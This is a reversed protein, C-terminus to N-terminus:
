EKIIRRNITQQGDTLNVIYVGNSLSSVDVSLANPDGFDSVKLIERGIMDYISVSVGNSFGFDKTTINLNDNVPNPWFTISNSEFNSNSLNQEKGNLVILSYVQEEQSLEDKHSITIDFIGQQDIEIIEINDVSNDGLLAPGGLNKMNLLWPLYEEEDNITNTVRLDLDNVLDPESDNYVGNLATGSPDNWAIAVKMILGSTNEFKLTHIEDQALTREKIVDSDQNNIIAEAARKSNMVGWGFVPDPGLPGADDATISILGKLSSSLMFNGNLNNYLEQLLTASGAVNPSAMSTGTARGYSSNPATSKISTGLGTIDPKIRGDDTPGQSSSSNMFANTMEGTEDDLSVLRANAVVLVNKSTTSGTLKDYGEQLGGAYEENGDNGAAFVALYRTASNSIADWLRSSSSYAGMLWEVGDANRVPVGYSHNSIIMGNQTSANFAEAVDNSAGFSSLRALPAMGKAEEDLGSAILTGAVHTAHFSVEDEDDVQVVRDVFEPHDLQPTGGVEWIGIDLGKGMLSLGLGGDPALFTTRTAKAAKANFDEIYIPHNDIVDWLLSNENKLITNPHIRLYKTIRDQKEQQIRQNEELFEQPSMQATASFSIYLLLLTLLNKM